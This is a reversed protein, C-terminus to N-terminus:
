IRVGEGEVMSILAGCGGPGNECANKGGGNRNMLDEPLKLPLEQEGM